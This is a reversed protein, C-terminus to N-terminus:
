SVQKQQQRQQLFEAFDRVEAVLDDSLNDLVTTLHERVGMTERAPITLILQHPYVTEVGITEIFSGSEDQTAPMFDGNEDYHSKFDKECHSKFAKVIDIALRYTECFYEAEFGIFNTKLESLKLQNGTDIKIIENIRKNCEDNGFWGSHVGANRRSSREAYLLWKLRLFTDGTELYTRLNKIYDLPSGRMIDDRILSNIEGDILKIAKEGEAMGLFAAIESASSLKGLDSFKIEKIKKIKKDGLREPYAKLVLLLIQSFFDDLVTIITIFLQHYIYNFVKKNKESMKIYENNIEGFEKPILNAATNIHGQFMVKDFNDTIHFSPEILDKYNINKAEVEAKEIAERIFEYCHSIAEINQLKQDSLGQIKSILEQRRTDLIQQLNEM